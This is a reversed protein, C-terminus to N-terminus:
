SRELGIGSSLVARITANVRSKPDPEAIALIKRSSLIAVQLQEVM